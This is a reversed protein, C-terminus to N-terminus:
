RNMVQTSLDRLSSKAEELTMSNQLKKYKVGLSNVESQLQESQKSLQDIQSDM